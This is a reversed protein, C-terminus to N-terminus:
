GWTWPEGNWPSGFRAGWCGHSRGKQNRPRWIPSEGMFPGGQNEQSGLGKVTWPEEGQFGPNPGMGIKETCMKPLVRSTGSQATIIQYQFRWVQSVGRGVFSPSVPRVNLNLSGWNQMKWITSTEPLGTKPVRIVEGGGRNGGGLREEEGRKEGSEPVRLPLLPDVRGPFMKDGSWMRVGRLSQTMPPPPPWPSCLGLSFSCAPVFLNSCM